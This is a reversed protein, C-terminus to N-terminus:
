SLPKPTTPGTLIKALLVKKYQGKFQENASYYTVTIHNISMSGRAFKGTRRPWREPPTNMLTPFEM